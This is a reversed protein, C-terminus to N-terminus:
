SNDEVMLNRMFSSQVSRFHHFGDLIWSKLDALRSRGAYYQLASNCGSLTLAFHDAELSTHIRVWSDGSYGDLKSSNQLYEVLRPYHSRLFEDLVCFERDAYLESGLHFGMSRFLKEENMPQALGYGDLVAIVAALTASNLPALQDLHPPPHNFFQASLKLATQALLRHTARRPDAKGGFEDIITAFFYSAVQVSCDRTLATEEIPNQFLDPRSAIAGVLNAVGAAFISNFHVYRAFLCLLDRDNGIAALSSKFAQAGGLDNFLATLDSRTLLAQSM